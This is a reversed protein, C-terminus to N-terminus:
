RGSRRRPAPAACSVEATEIQELTPIRGRLPTVGRDTTISAWLLDMQRDILTPDIHAFAAAASCVGKFLMMVDMAGIDRRVTGEQQARTVLKDLVGVLEAHAGRIEERALWTDDIADTVARDRHQVGALETLFEFLADDAGPADLLERGRECAEHMREAVIAAILDEKSAFNRFLTGRGVGAADAIEAVGVELGRERFLTTAAELLRVRNRAADARLQRDETTM